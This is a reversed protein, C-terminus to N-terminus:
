LIQRLRAAARAPEEAAVLDHADRAAEFVAQWRARQPEDVRGRSGELALEVLRCVEDLESERYIFHEFSTSEDLHAAINRLTDDSFDDVVVVHAPDM